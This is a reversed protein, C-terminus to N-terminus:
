PCAAPFPLARLLPASLHALPATHRALPAVGQPDTDGNRRTSLKVPCPAAM